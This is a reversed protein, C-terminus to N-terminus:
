KKQMVDLFREMLKLVQTEAEQHRQTKQHMKKNFTRYVGKCISCEETGGIITTITAGKLRFTIARKRRMAKNGETLDYKGNTIETLSKIERASM